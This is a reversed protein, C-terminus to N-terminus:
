GGRLPEDERKVLGLTWGREGPKFRCIVTQLKRTMQSGKNDARSEDLFINAQDELYTRDDPSIAFLAAASSGKLIKVNWVATQVMIGVLFSVSLAIQIALFSLWAWQVHVYSETSLVTGTESTSSM